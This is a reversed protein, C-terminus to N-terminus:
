HRSSLFGDGDAIIFERLYYSDKEQRRYCLVRLTFLVREDTSRGDTNIYCEIRYASKLMRAFEGATGETAPTMWHGIESEALWSPPEYLLDVTALKLIEGALEMVRRVGPSTRHAACKSLRERVSPDPEIKFRRFM